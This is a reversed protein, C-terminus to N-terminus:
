WSYWPPVGYMRAHRSQGSVESYSSKKSFFGTLKISYACMLSM